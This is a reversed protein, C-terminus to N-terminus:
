INNDSENSETIVPMSSWKAYDFAEYEKRDSDIWYLMTDHGEQADPRFITNQTSSVSLTNFLSGRHGSIGIHLNNSLFSAHYLWQTKSKELNTKTFSFSDYESPKYHPAIKAFVADALEQCEIFSLENLPFDCFVLYLRFSKFIIGRKEFHYTFIANHGDIEQQYTLSSNYPGARHKPSNNPHLAMVEAPTMNSSHVFPWVSPQKNIRPWFDFVAVWGILLILIVLLVRFKKSIHM